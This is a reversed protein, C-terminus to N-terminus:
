STFSLHLSLFFTHSDTPRSLSSRCLIQRNFIIKLLFWRFKVDPATLTTPKRRWIKAESHVTKETCCAIIKERKLSGKERKEEMKIQWFVLALSARFLFSLFSFGKREGIKIAHCPDYFLRRHRKQKKWFWYTPIRVLSPSAWITSLRVSQWM